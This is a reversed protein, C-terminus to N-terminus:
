GGVRVALDPYVARIGYLVDLRYMNIDNIIDYDGVLRMSLGKYSQRAKKPADPLEMPVMCLAFADEHFMMNQQINANATGLVTVVASDAPAASVTAYQDGLLGGSTVPIIAPSITVPTHNTSIADMTVDSKVVFQQLYPLVQKSAPNIANVGAITFIDGRRLTTSGTAGTLLIRQENTDRVTLSNGNNATTYLVSMLQGSTAAPSVVISGAATGRTHVPANQTAYADTNGIMPLKAREIATKAIDNVFLGTFSTAMGYFDAPSLCASRPTPVAMEDMRQPGRIFSSYGNLTTGPTGVYNWVDRYLSMIQLDIRHALASMANKLYRESFRDITLTLDKMPFRLDIGDQTDITIQMRGETADQSRAVAGTRVSYRVPKRISITEGKKVGQTFEDEYTRNVKSAMVLNNELLALSENVIVSPALLTQAM